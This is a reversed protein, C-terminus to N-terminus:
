KVRKRREACLFGELQVIHHPSLRPENDLRGHLVVRIKTAVRMASICNYSAKPNLHRESLRYPSVVVRAYVCTRPPRNAIVMRKASQPASCTTGSEAFRVHLTSAVPSKTRAADRERLDSSQISQDFALDRESSM